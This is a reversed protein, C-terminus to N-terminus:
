WGWLDYIVKRLISKNTFISEKTKAKDAEFNM